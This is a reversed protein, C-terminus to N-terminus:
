VPEHGVEWTERGDSEYWRGGSKYGYINGSVHLHEWKNRRALENIIEMMARLKNIEM